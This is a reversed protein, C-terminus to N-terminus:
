QDNIFKTRDLEIKKKDFVKQIDAPLSDIRNFSNPNNGYYIFYDNDLDYEYLNYYGRDLQKDYDEISNRYALFALYKGDEVLKKPHISNNEYDDYFGIWEKSVDIANDFRTISYWNHNQIVVYSEIDKTEEKELNSQGCGINCFMLIIISKILNKM